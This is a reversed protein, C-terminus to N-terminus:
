WEPSLSLLQRQIMFQTAANDLLEDLLDHMERRHRDAAANDGSMCAANYLHNLGTNRQQLAQSQGVTSQFQQYLQDRTISM